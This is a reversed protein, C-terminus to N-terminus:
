AAGAASGTSGSTWEILVRQPWVPRVRARTMGARDLLRRYEDPTRAARVSLPGDVRAVKSGSLVTTGLVALVLGATSRVLDSVVGGLRAAGALSRLLRVAEDDDLHHLFLSSTAIDCPPCGDALVDRVAFTVEAVGAREAARSAREVARDSRDVGTVLVAPRRRGSSHAARNLARALGITVDGGGSAVDVVHLPGVAASDGLMPLMAGALQTATRSFLNITALADLARLHEVEPLSPDDMLEPQRSPAITWRSV